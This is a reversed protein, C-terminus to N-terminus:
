KPCLVTDGCGQVLCLVDDGIGDCAWETQYLACHAIHQELQKKQDYCSIGAKQNTHVKYGQHNQATKM